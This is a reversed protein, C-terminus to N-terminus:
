VYKTDDQLNKYALLFIAWFAFLNYISINPMGYVFGDLLKILLLIALVNLFYLNSANNRLIKYAKIYLFISFIVYLLGWRFTEQAWLLEITSRTIFSHYTAFLGKGFFWDTTTFNNFADLLIQARSNGKWLFLQMFDFNRLFKEISVGLSAFQYREVISEGRLSSTKELLSLSGSYYLLLGGTMLKYVLKKNNKYIMLMSSIALYVAVLTYSRSGLYSSLFLILFISLWGLIFGRRENVYFALLSGPILINNIALFGITLASDISVSFSLLILFIAIPYTIITYKYLLKYFDIRETYTVLALAVIVLNYYGGKIILGDTMLKFSFTSSIDYLISILPYFYIISLLVLAKVWNIKSSELIIQQISMALVFIYSSVAIYKLINIHYLIALQSAISTIAVLIFVLLIKHIKM